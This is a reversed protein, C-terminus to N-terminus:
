GSYGRSKPNSRSVGAQPSIDSAFQARILESKVTIRLFYPDIAASWKRLIRRIFAPRPLGGLQRFDWRTWLRLCRLSCSMRARARLLLEDRPVRLPWPRRAGNRAKRRRM